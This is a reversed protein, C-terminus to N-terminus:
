SQRGTRQRSILDVCVLIIWAIVSLVMLWELVAPFLFDPRVVHRLDIARIRRLGVVFPLALFVVFLALSISGLIVLPRSWRTKHDRATLVTFLGVTVPWSFFFVDAVVLHSVLRNMPFFGLLACSVGSCVGSISAALGIRSRFHRGRGCIFLVLLSGGIFLGGNYVTAWPSTGYRGLESMFHNLFSFGHGHRGPFPIAPLTCCVALTLAGILGALITLREFDVLRRPTAGLPVEERAPALERELRGAQQCNDKV